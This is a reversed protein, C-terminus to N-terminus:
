MPEVWMARWQPAEFPKAYYRTDRVIRGDPDLEFIAVVHWVDDGYDNVGELVWTTNAGVVRRITITPPNPFGEQMARMNDRGRIREGSQPMEMVYTEHRLDYEAEASVRGDLATFLRELAERMVAPDSTRVAQRFLHGIDPDNMIQVM